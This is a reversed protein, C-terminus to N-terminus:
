GGGHRDSPHSAIVDEACRFAEAALPVGCYLAAHLLVERLEDAGVGNNLAGRVHGSLEHGRGLATLMAVTIMSRSRLDLGDRCWVNGWACETIFDQLPRTFPSANAFARDVFEDGMVHRRMALGRDFRDNAPSAAVSESRDAM